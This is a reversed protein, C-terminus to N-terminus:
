GPFRRGTRFVTVNIAVIALWILPISWTSHGQGAIVGSAITGMMMSSFALFVQKWSISGDAHVAPRRARRRGAAPSGNGMDDALQHRFIREDVRRDVEAGIREVLGAAISDDYATGLDRYAGVSAAIEEDM